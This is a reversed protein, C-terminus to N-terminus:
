PGGVNEGQSKGWRSEEGWVSQRRLHPSGKGANTGGSRRGSSLAIESLTNGKGAEAKEGGERSVYLRPTKKLGDRKRPRKKKTLTTNSQDKKRQKQEARRFTV